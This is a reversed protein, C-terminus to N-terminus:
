KGVAQTKNQKSSMWIKQICLACPFGLLVTYSSEIKYGKLPAKLCKFEYIFDPM